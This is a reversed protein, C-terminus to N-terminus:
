EKAGRMGLGRRMSRRRMSRRRRSSSSERRRMSRSSSSVRYVVDEKLETWSCGKGKLKRHLRANESRDSIM